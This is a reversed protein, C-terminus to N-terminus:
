NISGFGTLRPVQHGPTCMLSDDTYLIGLNSYISGNKCNNKVGYLNEAYEVTDAAVGGIPISFFQRESANKKFFFDSPDKYLGRSLDKNLKNKVQHGKTDNYKAYRDYDTYKEPNDYEYMPINMMPNDQTPTRLFNKTNYENYNVISNPILNQSQNQNRGKYAYKMGNSENNNNNGLEYTRLM